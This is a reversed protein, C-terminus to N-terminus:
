LSWNIPTLNKEKLFTNTKSFHKSGLFGRYASLPSPHSATLVLHKLTNILSVKKQAHAGWLLFVVHNKNNSVQKIIEDTFTEWGIHAHSMPQGQEVTLTTNLLLVGQHAWNLLNGHNPIELSLDHRLEKYINQLSPPISHKKPVSFALGEAQNINHYPDQGLIIVKVNEFPTEILCQFIQNHPPFVAAGAARRDKVYGSVRKFDESAYTNKLVEDWTVPNM